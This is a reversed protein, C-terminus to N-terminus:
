SSTGAGLAQLSRDLHVRLAAEYGTADRRAILRALRRHDRLVVGVTLPPDVQHPEIRPRRLDVDYQTVVAPQRPQDGPSVGLAVLHRQADVEVPRQLCEAGADRASLRSGGPYRGSSTHRSSQDADAAAQGSM